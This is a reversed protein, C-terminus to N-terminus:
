ETKVLRSLSRTFADTGKKSLHVNDKAFLSGDIIGFKNQMYERHHVFGYRTNKHGTLGSRFVRYNVM